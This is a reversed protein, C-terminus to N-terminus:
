LEGQFARHLLSQFLDDLRKRSDAQAAELARIEAARAAFTRQLEIPPVVLKIDRLTKLNINKQAAHPAEEELRGQLTSLWAQVFEVNVREGPTFGVVSDPFCADFCLIGTKAINAAITICLTGAPWLKSQALGFESYTQTFSTIRGSSNAVDGTQIFPYKGGFLSPEDRPRHKSRGRDLSGLNEFTEEPWDPSPSGFMEHFLSPQLDGTREDVKAGLRRLAEAEDLIRVIREQEPVPPLPIEIRKVEAFAVSDVGTTKNSLRSMDFATLFWYLFEVRIDPSTVKIIGIHSVIAARVGLIARHNLAVSGSRPFLICGPDFLKMGHERLATDTLKDDTETLDRTFHYRGLDKMRVFPTTGRQFYSDGQPAANGGEIVCLQALQKTPWRSM